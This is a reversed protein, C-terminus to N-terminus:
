IVNPEPFMFPANWFSKLQGTFFKHAHELLYINLRADGLDGPFYQLKHGVVNLTIFYLGLLLGLLFPWSNNFYKVIVKM